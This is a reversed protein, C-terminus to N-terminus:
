KRCFTLLLIACWLPSFRVLPEPRIALATRIGLLNAFGVVDGIRHLVGWGGCSKPLRTHLWRGNSCCFRTHRAVSNPPPFARPAIWRRGPSTQCSRNGSCGSMSRLPAAGSGPVPAAATPPKFGVPSSSRIISSIVRASPTAFTPPPQIFYALSVAHCSPGIGPCRCIPCAGSPKGEEQCGLEIRNHLQCHPSVGDRALPAAEPVCGVSAVYRCTVRPGRRHPFCSQLPPAALYAIAGSPSPM